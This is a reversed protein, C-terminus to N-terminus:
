PLNLVSAAREPASLIASLQLSLHPSASLFYHNFNGVFPVQEYWGLYSSGEPKLRM